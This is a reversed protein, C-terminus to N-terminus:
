QIEGNATIFTTAGALKRDNGCLGRDKLHDYLFPDDLRSKLFVFHVLDPTVIVDAIDLPKPRGDELTQGPRNDVWPLSSSGDGKCTLCRPGEREFDYYGIAANAVFNEEIRPKIRKNCLPRSPWPYITAWSCPLNKDPGCDNGLNAEVGVGGDLSPVLKGRLQVSMPRDRECDGIFFLWPVGFHYLGLQISMATFQQGVNGGLWDPDFSWGFDGDVYYHAKLVLESQFQEYEQYGIPGLTTDLYEFDVYAEVPRASDKLGVTFDLWLAIDESEPGTQQGLRQDSQEQFADRLGGVFLSTPLAGSCEGINASSVATVGFNDSPDALLDRYSECVGAYTDGKACRSVVEIIDAESATYTLGTHPLTDFARGANPDIGWECVIHKQDTCITEVVNPTFLYDVFPITRAMTQRDWDRLATVEGTSSMYVKLERTLFTPDECESVGLLMVTLAILPLAARTYNRSM